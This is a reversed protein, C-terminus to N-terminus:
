KLSDPLVRVYEDTHFLITEVLGFYLLLTIPFIAVTSMGHWLPALMVIHAATDVLPGSIPGYLVSRRM